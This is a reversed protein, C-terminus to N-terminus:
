APPPQQQQEPTYATDVSAKRHPDDTPMSENGTANNAGNSNSPGAADGNNSHHASGFNANRWEKDVERLVQLFYVSGEKEGPMVKGNVLAVVRENERSGGPGYKEVFALTQECDSGWSTQRGLAQLVNSKGIKKLPCGEANEPTRQNNWKAIQRQAFGYVRLLQPISLVHGKSHMFESYGEERQIHPKLWNAIATNVQARPARWQGDDFSGRVTPSSPEKGGAADGKLNSHSNPNSLSQTPTRERTGSDSSGAPPSAVGEHQARASASQPPPPPAAQQPGIGGSTSPRPGGYQAQSPPKSSYYGGQAGGASVPQQSGPQQAAQQQPGQGYGGASQSLSTISPRKTPREDLDMGTPSDPGRDTVSRKRHPPSIPASDRRHSTDIPSIVRAGAHKSPGSMSSAPTTHHHHTSHPYVEIPVLERSPVPQAIPAGDSPISQRPSRRAPVHYPAARYQSAHPARNAEITIQISLEPSIQLSSPQCEIDSADSMRMFCHKYKGRRCFVKAPGDIRSPGAQLQEVLEQANAWFGDHTASTRLPIIVEALLHEPEGDSTSRFDEMFITVSERDVSPPPALPINRHRPVQMPVPENPAVAGYSARRSYSAQQAAYHPVSPSSVRGQTYAPDAREYQARSQHQQAPPQQPLQQPHHQAMPTSQPPPHDRSSPYQPLENQPYYGSTSAVPSMALQQQQPAPQGAPPQHSLSARALPKSSRRQSNAQRMFPDQFEPPDPPQAAPQQHQQVPLGNHAQPQPAASGPATAPQRPTSQQPQAAWAANAPAPPPPPAVAPPRFIPNIDDPEYPAQQQGAYQQGAPQQAPAHQAQRSVEQQEWHPGPATTPQNPQATPPPQQAAKNRKLIEHVADM